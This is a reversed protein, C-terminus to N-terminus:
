SQLQSGVYFFCVLEILLTAWGSVLLSVGWPRQGRNRLIVGAVLSVGPLGLAYVLWSSSTASEVAKATVVLDLSLVLVGSLIASTWSLHRARREVTPMVNWGKIVRRADGANWDIADNLAHHVAGDM